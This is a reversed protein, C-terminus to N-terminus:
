RMLQPFRYRISLSTRGPLSSVKCQAVKSNRVFNIACNKKYLFQISSEEDNEVPAAIQVSAVQLQAILINWVQPKYERTGKMSYQLQLLPPLRFQTKGISVRQILEAWKSQASSTPRNLEMFRFIILLWNTKSLCQQNQDLLLYLILCFFFFPRWTPEKNEKFWYNPKVRVLRSISETSWLYNLEVRVLSSIGETLCNHWKGNNIWLYRIWRSM